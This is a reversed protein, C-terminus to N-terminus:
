HEGHDRHGSSHLATHDAAAVVFETELTWSRTLHDHDSLRGESRERSWGASVHGAGSWHHEVVVSVDEQCHDPAAITQSILLAHKVQM